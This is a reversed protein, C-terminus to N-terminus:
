GLSKSSNINPVHFLGRQNKSQLETITTYAEKLVLLLAIELVQDDVREVFVIFAKLNKKLDM